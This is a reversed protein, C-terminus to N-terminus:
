YIIVKNGEFRYEFDYESKLGNLVNELNENTFAGTFGGVFENRNQNEFEVGYWRSLTQNVQDFSAHDFSITNERWALLSKPIADTKSFSNQLTNYSAMQNKELLLYESGEIDVENSKMVKVKGSVVAVSTEAEDSYSKVSFSTGLVITTLEETHVIFPRYEDRSVEFFAEGVLTVKRQNQDFENPFVLRSGANLKVVTGDELEFTLKQGAPSSKETVANPTPQVHDLNIFTVLGGLSVLIVLLAAVKVITTLADRKRLYGIQRRSSTQKLINELVDEYDKKSSKSQQKPEISNVIERAKNIIHLQKPNNEIWVNWFHETEPGPNKVWKVFFEDILFDEIKYNKYQM